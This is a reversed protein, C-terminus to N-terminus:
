NCDQCYDNSCKVRGKYSYILSDKISKNFLNHRFDNLSRNLEGPIKETPANHLKSKGAPKEQLYNKHAINTSNWIKILSHPM